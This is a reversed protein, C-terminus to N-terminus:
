GGRERHVPASRDSHPPPIEKSIRHNKWSHRCSSAVLLQYCAKHNVEGWCGKKKYINERKKQAERTHVAGIRLQRKEKNSDLRAVGLILM